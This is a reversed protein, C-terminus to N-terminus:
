AKDRHEQIFHSVMDVGKFHAGCDDCKDRDEVQIGMFNALTTKQGRAVGCWYAILLILPLAVILNGVGTVSIAMAAFIMFATAATLEVWAKRPLKYKAARSM